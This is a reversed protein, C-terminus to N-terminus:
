DGEGEGNGLKDRILSLVPSWDALGWGWQPLIPLFAPRSRREGECDESGEGEDSLRLNVGM